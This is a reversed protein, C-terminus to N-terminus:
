RWAPLPSKPEPMAAMERMIARVRYTNAEMDALGARDKDLTDAALGHRLNSVIAYGNAYFGDPSTKVSIGYAWQDRGRVTGPGISTSAKPGFPIALEFGAFKSRPLPFPKLAETNRYNLSLRYDGFWHQSTLRVGRDWNYFQGAQAELFWQGEIMSYRASALGTKHIITDLTFGRTNDAQYYGSMSSLRLRGGPSLWALDIQGGHDSHQVYGVSAQAWIGLPLQRQYSLHSNEVRNRIRQDGFIAQKQFDATQSFPLATAQGQWLLGKALPLEWGLDLGLSYDYLGYETGVRQSLALGVELQPRIAEWFAKPAILWGQKPARADRGDALTLAQYGDCWSAGALFKELCYNNTKVTLVPDQLYTLALRLSEDPLTVQRWSALAVGLADLRNKRWALPEAQVVWGSENDFGISISSFGQKRLQAALQEARIEASKPSALDQQLARAFVAPQAPASPQVEIPATAKIIPSAASYNLASVPASVVSKGSGSARAQRDFYYVLGGSLQWAQQDSRHTFKRSASAEFDLSTTLPLAYRAGGRWERGDYDALLKWRESLLLQGSGFVGNLPTAFYNAAPRKAYGLSLDLAGFSSTAVGYYSKFLAALGGFDIAGFAIRTNGPLRLPLQYKASVSLDRVSGPCPPTWADCQLDGEFALRSGLELGPLLGFGANISGFAGIGPNARTMEPNNNTLAAAAAGNPVVDANPTNIASTFGGPALQAAAPMAFVAAVWLPWFAQKPM